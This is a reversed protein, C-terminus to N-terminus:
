LLLAFSGNILISYIRFIFRLCHFTHNEALNKGKGSQIQCSSVVQPPVPPVIFGAMLAVFGLCAFVWGEVEVLKSALAELFLNTALFLKTAVETELAVWSLVTCAGVLWRSVRAPGGLLVLDIICILTDGSCGTSWISVPSGCPSLVGLLLVGASDGLAVTIAHVPIFKGSFAEGHDHAHHPTRLWTCLHVRGHWAVATVLVFDTIVVIGLPGSGVVDLFRLPLTLQVELVAKSYAGVFIELTLLLAVSTMIVVFKGALPELFALASTEAIIAVTKWREGVTM